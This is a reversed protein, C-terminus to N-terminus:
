IELMMPYIKLCGNRLFNSSWYLETGIRIEFSALGKFGWELIKKLKKSISVEGKYMYKVLYMSTIYGRWESDHTIEFKWKM